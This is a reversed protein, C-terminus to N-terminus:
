SETAAAFACCLAIVYNLVLVLGSMSASKSRVEKNLENTLSRSDMIWSESLEAAEEASAWSRASRAFLAAPLQNRTDQSGSLESMVESSEAVNSDAMRSSAPMSIHTDSTVFREILPLLVKNRRAPCPTRQGGYWPSGPDGNLIAWTASTLHEELWDNYFM